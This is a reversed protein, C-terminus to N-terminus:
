IILFGRLVYPNLQSFNYVCSYSNVQNLGTFGLTASRAILRGLCLEVLVFVSVYWCVLMGVCWCVLVGVYWYVLVSVYWYVLVGVYWYVLMGVCWYVLVGVYRCVLM